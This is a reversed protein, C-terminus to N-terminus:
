ASFNIEYSTFKRINIVGKEFILYQGKIGKLVGSVTPEKDFNFSSIKTPYNEVPFALDVVEEDLREIATAGFLEALEDLKEQIQPILEQASQKLDLEPNIGKLMNRWNTKDAIFNALAVEVLGSQLRTQVKFIPLAQTAGQDIWRTPIQTHRTIGVKLGSTNALYVYHPIMCNAEGWEPERCTGQDYHCTEPKMICMDCSALKKMCVFCHGQSYSKKTKKGCSCCYINGTFTLTIEKDFYDNLNILEEGIPLQYQIPNTLSAKLKSLTGQM